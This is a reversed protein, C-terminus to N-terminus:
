AVAMGNRRSLQKQKALMWAAYAFGANSLTSVIQEVWHTELTKNPMGGIGALVFSMLLNVGFLGFALMQGQGKARRMLLIMFATNAVTTMGMLVFVWARSQLVVAMAGAVALAVVSILLPKRWVGRVGGEGSPLPLLSFAMMTFGPGIMVFLADRFLAVDTQSISMTLKWTAKLVGAVTILAVGAIAMQGLARDEARVMQAIWWLGLASFLVPMYNQLAMSLPFNLDTM